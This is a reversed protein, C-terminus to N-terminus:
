FRMDEPSHEESLELLTQKRAMELKGLSGAHRPEHGRGEDKFHMGGAEAEMCVCEHSQGALRGRILVEAIVM